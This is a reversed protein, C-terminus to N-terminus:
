YGAVGDDGYIDELLRSYIIELKTPDNGALQIDAEVTNADLNWSTVMDRIETLLYSAKM